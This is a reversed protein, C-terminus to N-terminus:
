LCWRISQHVRSHAVQALAVRSLWIVARSQHGAWLLGAPRCRQHELHWCADPGHATGWTGRTAQMDKMLTRHYPASCRMAALCTGPRGKCSCHHGALWSLRYQLIGEREDKQVCCPSNSKCHKGFYQLFALKIWHMQDHTFNGHVGMDWMITKPTGEPMSM